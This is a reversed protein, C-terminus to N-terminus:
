DQKRDDCDDGDDREILIRYICDGICCKNEGEICSGGWLHCLWENM